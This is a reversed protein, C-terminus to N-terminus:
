KNYSKLKLPAARVNVRVLIVSISTSILPVTLTMRPEKHYSRWIYTQWLYFFINRFQLNSLYLVTIVCWDKCHIYRCYYSLVKSVLAKLLLCTCIVKPYTFNVTLLKYIFFFFLVVNSGFTCILQPRSKM